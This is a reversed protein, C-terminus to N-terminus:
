QFRPRLQNAVRYRPDIMMFILCRGLDERFIDAQITYTYYLILPRM